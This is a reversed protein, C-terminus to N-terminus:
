ETSDDTPPKPIPFPGNSKRGAPDPGYVFKIKAALEGPTTATGLLRNHEAILAADDDREIARKIATQPAALLKSTCKEETEVLVSALQQNEVDNLYDAGLVFRQIACSYLQGFRYAVASTMASGSPMKEALAKLISGDLLEYKVSWAMYQKIRLDAIQLLLEEAQSVKVGGAYDVMLALTEPGSNEVLGALRKAIAGAAQATAAGGANLKAVIGPNTLSHVAWYRVIANDSRLMAVSLDLLRLDAMGDILILLNAAVKTRLDEPLTLAAQLGSTLHKLASTSFQEAYQKQAAQRSLIIARLRAIDTFKRTAVMEQLADALFNDIVQLDQNTLVAKSRVADIATPDLAMATSAAIVFSFGALIGLLVWKARM